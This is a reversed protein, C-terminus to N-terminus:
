LASEGFPPGIALDQPARTTGSRTVIMCDGVKIGKSLVFLPNIDISHLVTSWSMALRSLAALMQVLGEIDRQPQGRVGELIPKGRLENLMAHATRADFPAVRFAVDQFVETMIGGLGFMVVPGFQEDVVVGAIAEAANTVMEEVLVGSVRANPLNRRLNDIVVSYAERVQPEDRIGLWVAGVDTKHPADPSQAKLVVPFGIRSAVQVAEEASHVFGRKTTSFGARELLDKSEYETLTTSAQGLYQNLLGARGGSRKPAALRRYSGADRRTVHYAVTSAVARTCRVPDDFRPIERQDLIQYAEGARDRRASWVVYVPKSTEESVAVLDKALEVGVAGQMSGNVVILLDINPDRVVVELAQAASGPASFIQGTLDVPNAISGFEPVFASLESMTTDALTALQLGLRACEDAILIGAGGSVTVVGVRPGRPVKATLLAKSLDIFDQIESIEILGAQRFAARYIQYSTAMAGTHSVAAQKGRESNGAKWILIPKGAKLGELGLEILRRGDRVSEVYVAILKTDLDALFYDIFDIASLDAENGTSVFYRFGVGGESALSVVASGFAGSQTVFSISGARIDDLSFLAGFGAFVRQSVNMVGQCNPGLLRMGGVAANATVRSQLGVGEGGAEAFGGGLLVGFPVGKAASHAIADAVAPAPIAIMAVDVPPGPIDDITAYTNLSNVSATSPNVAFIQGTFGHSQLATVVQGGISGARESAGVM